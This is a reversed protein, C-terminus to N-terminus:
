AALKQCDWSSRSSSTSYIILHVCFVTMVSLVCPFCPNDSLLCYSLERTVVYVSVCNVESGSMGGSSEPKILYCCDRFRETVVLRRRPKQSYQSPRVMGDAMVYQVAKEGLPSSLQSSRVIGAVAPIHSFTCFVGDHSFDRL